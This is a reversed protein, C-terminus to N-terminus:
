FTDMTAETAVPSIRILVTDAVNNCHNCLWLGLCIRLGETEKLHSVPVSPLCTPVWSVLHMHNHHMLSLLRADLLRM